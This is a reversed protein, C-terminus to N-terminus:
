SAGVAGVATSTVISAAPTVASKVAVPVLRGHYSTAVPPDGIAVPEVNVVGDIM